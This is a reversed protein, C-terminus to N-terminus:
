VVQSNDLYQFIDLKMTNMEKFMETRVDKGQMSKIITSYVLPIQIILMIVVFIITDILTSNLAVMFTYGGVVVLMVILGLVNGKKLKENEKQLIIMFEEKTLEEKGQKIRKMNLRHYRKVFAEALQRKLSENRDINMQSQIEKKSFQLGEDHKKRHVISYLKYFIIYSLTSGLVWIGSISLNLSHFLNISIFTVALIFISSILVYMFYSVKKLKFMLEKMVTNLLALTLAAGAFGAFFPLMNVKAKLISLDGERFIELMPIIEIIFVVWALRYISKAFEGFRNKLSYDEFYGKCFVKVDRGVVKKVSDGNSQATLMLDILDMMREELLAGNINNVAAYLEVKEFAEKYEGKLKDAYFIYNTKLNM